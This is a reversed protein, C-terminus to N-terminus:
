GAPAQERANLSAELAARKLRRLSCEKAKWAIALTLTVPLFFLRAPWENLRVVDVLEAFLSSEFRAAARISVAVAGLLPLVMLLIVSWGVLRAEIHLFDDGLAAGLDSALKNVLYLTWVMSGLMALVNALYFTEYRMASWWYYFPTFYIQLFTALLAQGVWRPWRVSVRGARLLYVLGIYSVVIGAVYPPLRVGKVAQLQIAGYALLLTLPIGWFLCSFGRAARLLQDPALEFDPRADAGPAPVQAPSQM